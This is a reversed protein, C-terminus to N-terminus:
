QELREVLIDPDLFIPVTYKMYMKWNGDSYFAIPTAYACIAPKVYNLRYLVRGYKFLERYQIKSIIVKKM